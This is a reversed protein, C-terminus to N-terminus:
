SATRRRKRHEVVVALVKGPQKRNVTRTAVEPNPSTLDYVEHGASDRGRPRYRRLAVRNDFHAIVIDDDCPTVSLSVVIIDGINIEDAMEGDEVRLAIAKEKEEIDASITPFDSFDAEDYNLAVPLFEGMSILPIMRGLQKDDLLTFGVRAHEQIQEPKLGLVRAVKEARRRNPASEGKEWKGVASKSVGVRRALEPQSIGLKERATRITDAISMLLLDRWPPEDRLGVKHQRNAVFQQRRRSGPNGNTMIFSIVRAAM